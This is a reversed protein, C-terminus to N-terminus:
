HAIKRASKQTAPRSLDFATLLADDAVCRFQSRLHQAFGSYYTLWWFSSWIFVIFRAGQKRLRDLELIASADDTPPGWYQGDKELFPFTKRHPLSSRLQEEDVVILKEGKPVLRAIEARARRLRSTQQPEAQKPPTCQLRPVGPKPLVALLTTRDVTRVQAGEFDRFDRASWLSRHRELENGCLDEQATDYKPTSVIVAKAARAIAEGLLNLGPAKEFHEIIDGMFILDYPPMKKMLAAADGINITNYLYRHMPTLYAAHGEIGDIRVQWNKRLYRAPDQEAELIDTYERFLHGWKGFGIGVDLISRPKLQRVLHVVTPIINPRSSPM